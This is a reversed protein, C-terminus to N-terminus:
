KALFEIVVDKNKQMIRYLSNKSVVKYDDPNYKKLTNVEIRYTAYRSLLHGTYVGNKEFYRPIMLSFIRPFKKTALLVDKAAACKGEIHFKCSDDIDKHKNLDYVISRAVYNEYNSQSKLLSGYAYSFGYSFLYIPIFIFLVLRTKKTLTLFLIGIFLLFTTFSIFSRPM